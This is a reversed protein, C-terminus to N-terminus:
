FPEDDVDPLGAFPGRATVRARAEANQEDTARLKGHNRGRCICTCEAPASAANGCLEDCYHGPQRTM